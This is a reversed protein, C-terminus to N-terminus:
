QYLYKIKDLNPLRKHSVLDSFHIFRLTEGHAIKGLGDESSETFMTFGDLTLESTFASCKYSPAHFLGRITQVIDNNRFVVEIPDYIQYLKTIDVM